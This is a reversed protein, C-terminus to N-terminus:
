RRSEIIKLLKCAQCMDGMTPEGCITCRQLDVEEMEKKLPKILLDFSKMLSYKTGPHKAEFANLLDRIEARLSLHAYPCEDFLVPIEKLLAYLAVEKEPVYRLPKIRPVLGPKKTPMLRVLREMDGRLLNMLVTQAEDDLCHGTVLKTAGLANATRNLIVRRFVGCYTCPAREGLIAMQDLTLGFQDEFSAIEHRINLKKCVQKAMKLTKERYGHIGEDISIAMLQIDPHDKFLSHIIHLVVTSDKGGSLAFAVTDGREIMKYRRISHKVKREVDKEFHRKCLHMGSYKQHIIATHHCKDCRM